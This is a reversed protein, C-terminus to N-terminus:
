AARPTPFCFFTSAAHKFSFIELLEGPEGPESAPATTAPPVPNGAAAHVAERTVGPRVPRKSSPGGCLTRPVVERGIEAGPAIPVLTRPRQDPLPICGGLLGCLVVALRAAPAPM